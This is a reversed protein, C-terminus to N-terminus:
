PFVQPAIPVRDPEEGRLATLLRQKSSMEKAM